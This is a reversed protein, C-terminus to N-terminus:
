RRGGSTGATAALVCCGRVMDENDCQWRGAYRACGEAGLPLPLAVAALVVPSQETAGM